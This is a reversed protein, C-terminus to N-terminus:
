CTMPEFGMPPKEKKGSFNMEVWPTGAGTKKGGGVKEGSGVKKGAGVTGGDAM